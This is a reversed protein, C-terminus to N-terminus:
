EISMNMFGDNAETMGQLGVRKATGAHSTTRNGSDTSSRESFPPGIGPKPPPGWLNPGTDPVTSSHTLVPSSQASVSPSVARRKFLNPDFDDERRRKRQIENIGPAHPTSARSRPKSSETVTSLMTTSPTLDMSIDDDPVCSAGAMTGPPTRHREDFSNWFEVGGSNCSAQKSFSSVAPAAIGSKGPSTNTTPTAGRPQSPQLPPFANLTPSTETDRVQRIVEAERKMESDVPAGEEM